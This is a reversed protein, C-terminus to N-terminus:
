GGDYAGPMYRRFYTGTLMRALRDAAIGLLGLTLMAAFMEGMAM